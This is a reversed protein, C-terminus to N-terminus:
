RRRFRPRSREQPEREPKGEKLTYEFDDLKKKFEEDNKIDGRQKLTERALLFFALALSKRGKNNIPIVLDIRSLENNTSCMGIVVAKTKEIEKLVQKDSEPDALVVVKPEMFKKANPNSFTGPIFRGLVSKGGVAEAFNRVADQGYTKRSVAVIGDPKFRALFGAAIRIRSDITEVDLVKLGDKRQKFIYRRMDGTKFKTGIHSGTKLYEDLEVLHKKEAM